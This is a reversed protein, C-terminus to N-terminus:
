NAKNAQEALLQMTAYKSMVYEYPKLYIRQNDYEFYYRYYFGKENEVKEVFLVLKEM